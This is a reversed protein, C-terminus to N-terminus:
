SRFYVGCRHRHRSGRRPLTARPFFSGQFLGQDSRDNSGAQRHCPWGQGALNRFKSPEQWAGDSGSGARCRKARSFGGAHRPRPAWVHELIPLRGQLAPAIPTSTTSTTSAPATPATPAPTAPASAAMDAPPGCSCCRGHWTAFRAGTGAFWSLWGAVPETRDAGRRCRGPRAHGAYRQSGALGNASHRAAEVAGARGAESRGTKRLRGCWAASPRTRSGLFSM